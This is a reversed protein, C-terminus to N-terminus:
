AKAKDVIPHLLWTSKKLFQARSVKLRFVLQARWKRRSYFLTSKTHMCGGNWQRCNEVTFLAGNIFSFSRSFASFCDIAVSPSSLSPHAIKTLKCLVTTGLRVNFDLVFSILNLGQLLLMEFGREIRVKNQWLKSDELFTLM